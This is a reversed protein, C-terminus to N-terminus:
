FDWAKFFGQPQAQSDPLAGAAKASDLEKQIESLKENATLKSDATISQLDQVIESPSGREPREQAYAVSVMFSATQSIKQGTVNSGMAVCFIILTNLVYYIPRLWIPASAALALFGFLASIVLATYGLPINFIAGM